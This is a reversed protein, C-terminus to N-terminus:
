KPFLVNLTKLPVMNLQQSKLFFFKQTKKLYFLLKGDFMDNITLEESDSM